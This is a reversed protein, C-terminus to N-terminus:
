RDRYGIWFNNTRSTRISRYLVLTSNESSPDKLFTSVEGLPPSIYVESDGRHNAYHQVVKWMTNYQVQYRGSLTAVIRAESHDLYDKCWGLISILTDGTINKSRGLELPELDPSTLIQYARNLSVGCKTSIEFALQSPAMLSRDFDLIYAKLQEDAPNNFVQRLKTSAQKGAWDDVDDNEVKRKAPLKQTINDAGEPSSVAHADYEKNRILDDPGEVANTALSRTPPYKEEQPQLLGDYSALRHAIPRNAHETANLFVSIEDLSMQGGNETQTNSDSTSSHPNLDQDEVRRM